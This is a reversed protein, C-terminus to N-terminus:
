DLSVEFLPRTEDSEILLDIYQIYQDETLCMSDHAGKFASMLCKHKLVQQTSKDKNLDLMAEIYLTWMAETQM